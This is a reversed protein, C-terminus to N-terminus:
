VNVKMEEIPINFLTHAHIKQFVLDELMNENNYTRQWIPYVLEDSIPEGLQKMLDAVYYDYIIFFQKSDRNLDEYIKNKLLPHLHDIIIPSPKVHKEITSQAVLYLRYNDFENLKPTITRYQL